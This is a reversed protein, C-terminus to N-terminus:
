SAEIMNISTGETPAEVESTVPTAVDETALMEKQEELHKKYDILGVQLICAPTITSKLIAGGSLDMGQRLIKDMTSEADYKVKSKDKGAFTMLHSSIEAYAKEGDSKVQNYIVEVM